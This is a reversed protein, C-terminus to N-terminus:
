YTTGALFTISKLIFVHDMIYSSIEVAKEWLYGNPLIERSSDLAFLQQTNEPLIEQRFALFNHINEDTSTETEAPEQKIFVDMPEMLPLCFFDANQFTKLRKAVFM